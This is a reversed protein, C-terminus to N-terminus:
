SAITANAKPSKSPTPPASISVPTATSAYTDPNVKVHDNAATTTIDLSQTPCVQVCELCATCKETNIQVPM